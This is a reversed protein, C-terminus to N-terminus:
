AQITLKLSPVNFVYEFSQARTGWDLFLIFPCEKGKIKRPMDFEMNKGLKLGTDIANLVICLFCTSFVPYSYGLRFIACPPM